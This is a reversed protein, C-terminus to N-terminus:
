RCLDRGEEKASQGNGVHKCISKVKEEVIVKHNLHVFVGLVVCVLPHFTLSLRCCFPEGGFAVFVVTPRQHHHHECTAPANKPTTDRSKATM